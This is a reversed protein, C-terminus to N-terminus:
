ATLTKEWADICAGCWRQGPQLRANEVRAEKPSSPVPSSPLDWGNTGRTPKCLMKAACNLGGRPKHDGDDVRLHHVIAYVTECAILKM